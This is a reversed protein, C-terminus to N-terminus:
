NAGEYTSDFEKIQETSLTKFTFSVGTPKWNKNVSTFLKIPQNKDFVNVVYIKLISKEEAFISFQIPLTSSTDAVYMADISLDSLDSYMIDSMPPLLPAHSIPIVNNDTTIYGYSNNGPYLSCHNLITNFSKDSM